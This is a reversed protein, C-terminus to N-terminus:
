STRHKHMLEFCSVWLFCLHWVQSPQPSPRPGSCLTRRKPSARSTRPWWMSRTSPMGTWPSSCSTTVALRSGSRQNGSPPSSRPSVPLFSVLCWFAKPSVAPLVLWCSSHLPTVLYQPLVFIFVLSLDYNKNGAQFVQFYIIGCTLPWGQPSAFLFLPPNGTHCPALGEIGQGNGQPRAPVWAVSQSAPCM